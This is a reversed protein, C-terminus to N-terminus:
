RGARPTGVPRLRSCSSARRKRCLENEVGIVVRRWGPAQVERVVARRPHRDAAAHPQLHAEM